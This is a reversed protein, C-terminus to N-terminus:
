VGGTIVEWDEALMDEQYAQAPAFGSGDALYALIIPQVGVDKPEGQIFLSVNKAIPLMIWFGGWHSRKIRKGRKLKELAEGFTM